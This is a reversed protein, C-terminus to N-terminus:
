PGQAAICGAMSVLAPRYPYASPLAVRVRSKLEEIRVAIKLFARRIALGKGDPALAQILRVTQASGKRRHKLRQRPVSALATLLLDRDLVDRHILASLRNDASDRSGPPPPGIASFGNILAM